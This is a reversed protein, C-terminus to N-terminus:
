RTPRNNRPRRGRNNCRRRNALCRTSSPRPRGPTFRAPRENAVAADPVASIRQRCDRSRPAGLSRRAGARRGATDPPSRTPVAPPISADAVACWMRTPSYSSDYDGSAKRAKKSYACEGDPGGRVAPKGTQTEKRKMQRHRVSCSGPAARDVHSIGFRWCDDPGARYTRLGFAAGKLDAIRKDPTSIDAYQYTAGAAVQGESDFRDVVRM